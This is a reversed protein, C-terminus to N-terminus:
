QQKIIENKEKKFKRIQKCGYILIPLSVILFIISLIAFLAYIGSNNLDNVIRMYEESESINSQSFALFLAMLISKSYDMIKTYFLIGCVISTVLLTAGIIACIIGKDYKKKEEIIMSEGDTCSIFRTCIVFLSM